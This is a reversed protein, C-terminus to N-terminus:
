YACLIEWPGWLQFNCNLKLRIELDIPTWALSHLTLSASYFGTPSFHISSKLASPLQPIFASTYLKMTSLIWRMHWFESSFMQDILLHIVIRFRCSCFASLHEPHPHTMLDNFVLSFAFMGVVVLLQLHSCPFGILADGPFIYIM